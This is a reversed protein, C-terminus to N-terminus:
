APPCAGPRRGATPWSAKRTPTVPHRLGPRLEPGARPEHRAAAGQRRGDDGRLDLHARGRRLAGERDKARDLVPIAAVDIWRRAYVDSCSACPTAGPTRRPPTRRTARRGCSSPPACSCGPGCSGACSTRGSTSSCRAPRPPEAGVQRLLQQHDDRQDPPGRAAGRTGQGRRPHGRGARASGRSTSPRAGSTPSPSSCRSTPTRPGPPRSASTSSPRCSSGSGTGGPDSSWRGASPVTRPWRRTASSTRTGALSTRPGPPSRRDGVPDSPM